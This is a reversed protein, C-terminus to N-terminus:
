AALKAQMERKCERVGGNSYSVVTILIFVSLVILTVSYEAYLVIGPPNTKDLFTLEKM